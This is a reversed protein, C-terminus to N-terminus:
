ALGYRRELVDAGVTDLRDVEALAEADGPELPEEDALLAALLAAAPGLESDPLEDILRHLAERTM